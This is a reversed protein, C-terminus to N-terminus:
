DTGHGYLAAELVAEVLDRTTGNHKRHLLRYKFAARVGRRIMDDNMPCVIQHLLALKQPDPPAVNNM